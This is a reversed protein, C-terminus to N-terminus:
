LWLLCLAGAFLASFRQRSAATVGASIKLINNLCNSEM